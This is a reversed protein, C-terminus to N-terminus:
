IHERKKEEDLKRSKKLRINYVCFDGNEGAPVTGFCFGEDPSLHYRDYRYREVQHIMCDLSDGLPPSIARFM